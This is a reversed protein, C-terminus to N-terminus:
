EDNRAEAPSPQPFITQLVAQAEEKGADECYFENTLLDEAHFGILYGEFEQLLQSVAERFRYNETADDCLTFEIRTYISKETTM